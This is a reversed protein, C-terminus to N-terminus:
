RRLSLLRVRPWIDDTSQDDQRDIQQQAPSTSVEQTSDTTDEVQPQDEVPHADMGATDSSQSEDSPTSPETLAAVADEIDSLVEADKTADECPMPLNDDVDQPAMEERAVEGTITDEPLEPEVNQIPPEETNEQNDGVQDVATDPNLPEGQQVPSSDDVLTALKEEAEALMDIAVEATSKNLSTSSEESEEIVGVEVAEQVINHAEDNVVSMIIEKRVSPFARDIHDIMEEVLPHQADHLIKKLEKRDAQNYRGTPAQGIPTCRFVVHRQARRLIELETRLCLLDHPNHVVISTVCGDRPISYHRPFFDMM